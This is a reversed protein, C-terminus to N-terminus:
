TGEVQREPIKFGLYTGSSIGMLALLTTDLEPMALNTYVGAGFVFVLIATWVVMQFRHLSVGHADTVLDFFFGDSVPNSLRATALPLQASLDEMKVLKEMRVGQLRQTEAGDLGEQGLQSEVEGIEAELRAHQSRLTRLEQFISEQKNHDISHAGLATGIGIGMLILGQSTIINNYDGTIAYVFLFSGIIVFFWIAMQTLALSYPRMEDEPPKPPITDRIINRRLAYRIFLFLVALLFLGMGLSWMPPLVVLAFSVAEGVVATLEPGEESGIGVRVERTIGTPSGLLANWTQRSQDTRRLEFTLENQIPDVDVPHLGQLPRGDLYLVLAGPDIEKAEVAASLGTVSVHIRDGLGARRPQVDSVTLLVRDTPEEPAPAGPGSLEGSVTGQSPRTPLSDQRNESDVQPALLTALIWAVAPLIMSSM